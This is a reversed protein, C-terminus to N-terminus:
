EVEQSLRWADEVADFAEAAAIAKVLELIRTFLKIRLMPEWGPLFDRAIKDAEFVTYEQRQEPTMTALVAPFNANRANDESEAFQDNFTDLNRQLESM